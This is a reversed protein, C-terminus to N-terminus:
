YRGGSAARLRQSFDDAGAVRADIARASALAASAGALDGAGLREDGVALWRRALRRRSAPLDAGGGDLAVRADLCRRARGLDNDRLGSDFCARAAPVMGAAARRVAPDDPALLRAARLADFASEGPPTLLDGRAQAAAAQALLVRVRQRRRPTSAGAAVRVQVQQSQQVHRQAQEIGPADPALARAQALDANAAKFDFDEGRRAARAALATAVQALGAAADGDGDRDLRAYGDAAAQLRGGRLDAAAQRRQRDFAELLRTGIAPLEAHGPDHRRAAAIMEAAASVDGAALATDARQLLDAMADERGELARQLAPQLSLVRGYLPLAANADGDLRGALRAADARALLTDIGAHALQQRRLDVALADAGARPVSMARALALDQKAADLHGADLQVRARALAADAVARLGDRAESRDPDMALAATYLERAGSGDVATLRGQQLALAAQARLAQARTEPYMADIVHGRMAVLVGIALLALLAVGLIWRGVVRTPLRPRM